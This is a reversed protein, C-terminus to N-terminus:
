FYFRNQNFNCLVVNQQSLKHSKVSRQKNVPSGGTMEVFELFLLACKGQCYLIYVGHMEVYSRKCVLMLVCCVAQWECRLM